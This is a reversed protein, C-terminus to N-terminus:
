AARPVPRATQSTQVVDLFAQASAQWTMGLAFARCRQRSLKLAEFCATRLNTNLAAVPAEVLYRRSASAAPFAAVPLGSALAELLM